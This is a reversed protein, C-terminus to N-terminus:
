RHIVRRIIRAIRERWRLPPRGEPQYDACLCLRGNIPSTAFLAAYQSPAQCVGFIASHQRETHLCRCRPERGTM